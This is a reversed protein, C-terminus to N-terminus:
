NFVYVCKTYINLNYLHTFHFSLRECMRRWWRGVGNWGCFRGSSLTEQADEWFKEYIYFIYIVDSYVYIFINECLCFYVCYTHIYLFTYFAM